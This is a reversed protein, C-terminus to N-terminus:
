EAKADKTTMGILGSLGMGFAAIVEWQEPSIAIGLSSLFLALGRWTSPERMRAVVFQM